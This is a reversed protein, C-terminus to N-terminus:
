APTRAFGGHLVLRGKGDRIQVSRYARLNRAFWSLMGGGADDLSIPGILLPRRSPATLWARYPAASRDLGGVLVIVEDAFTSSTVLLAGGDGARKATPALVARAILDPQGGHARLNTLLGNLRHLMQHVQQRSDLLKQETSQDHAFLTGALVVAVLGVIAALLIAARLTPRRGPRRRQAAARIGSAERRYTSTSGAFRM